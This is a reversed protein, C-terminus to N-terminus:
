IVLKLVHKLIESYYMDSVTNGIEIEPSEQIELIRPNDFNTISESIIDIAFINLGIISAVKKVLKIYLDDANSIPIVEFDSDTATKSFEIVEDAQPVYKESYGSRNLHLVCEKTFGRLKRAAYKIDALEKITNLGNGTVNKKKKKTIDLVRGFCHYFRFVSGEIHKEIILEKHRKSMYKQVDLFEHESSINPFVDLSETLDDPKICIPYHISSIFSFMGTLDDSLFVKQVPVKIGHSRLLFASLSKSLSFRVSTLDENFHNTDNINYILTGNNFLVEMQTNSLRNIHFDVDLDLAAKILNVIKYGHLKSYIFISNITAYPEKSTLTDLFDNLIGMTTNRWLKSPILINMTFLTNFCNAGYGNKALLKEINARNMKDSMTLIEDIVLNSVLKIAKNGFSQFYYNGNYYYHLPNLIYVNEIDETCGVMNIM